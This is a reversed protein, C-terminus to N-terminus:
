RISFTTTTYYMCKLKGRIETFLCWYYANLRTGKERRKTVAPTRVSRRRSGAPDLSALTEEKINELTNTARVNVEEWREDIARVRSRRAGFSHLLFFFWSQSNQELAM